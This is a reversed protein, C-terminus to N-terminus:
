ATKEKEVKQKELYLKFNTIGALLLQLGESIAESFDPFEFSFNGEKLGEIGFDTIDAIKKIEIDNQVTVSLTLRKQLEKAIADNVEWLEKRDSKEKKILGFIADSIEKPLRKNIENPQVPSENLHAHMLAINSKNFVCSGTLLHYITCGLQYLDTEISHKEGKWQEPAAYAPSKFNVVTHTRTAADIYRALGFDGVRTVGFKSLFINLPKIDRHLINQKHAYDLAKCIEWSIYLALYYYTEEDLITKYKSVFENLNMGDIYEMVIYHYEFSIDSKELIGYDLVSVINPHGILSAGTKAEDFFISIAQKESGQITTKIAINRDLLKDRGLWVEGMGGRAILENLVYRNNLEM